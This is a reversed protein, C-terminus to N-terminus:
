SWLHREFAAVDMWKRARDNTACPSNWRQAHEPIHTAGIHGGCGERTRWGNPLPGIAATWRMACNPAAAASAMWTAGSCPLYLGRKGMMRRMGTVVDLGQICALPDGAAEASLTMPAKGHHSARGPGGGAHDSSCFACLEDSQDAQHRLREHRGRSVARPRAADCERDNRRDAARRRRCIRIEITATVGDMVPM